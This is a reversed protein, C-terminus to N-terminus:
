IKEHRMGLSNRNELRFELVILNELDRERNTSFKRTWFEENSKPTSALRCGHHRHWFCGHVFICLKHKALVLDPRIGAIKQHLRFRLGLSHLQKRVIVEPTTNKSKINAMMKSRTSRSVIDM